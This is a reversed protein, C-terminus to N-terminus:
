FKREGNEPLYADLEWSLPKPGVANYGWDAQLRKVADRFEALITTSSRVKIMVGDSCRVTRGDETGWYSYMCLVKVFPKM